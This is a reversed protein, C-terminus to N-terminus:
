LWDGLSLKLDLALQRAAEPKNIMKEYCKAVVEIIRKNKYFPLLQRAEDEVCSYPLGDKFTPHDLWARFQEDLLFKVNKPTAQHDQKRCLFIAEALKLAEPSEWYPWYALATCVCAGPVENPEATLVSAVVLQERKVVELNMIPVYIVRKNVRRVKPYPFSGDSLKKQLTSFKLGASQAMTMKWEKFPIEAIM